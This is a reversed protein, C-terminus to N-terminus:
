RDTDLCSAPFAVPLIPMVHTTTGLFSAPLAEPLAALECGLLSSCALQPPSRALLYLPRYAERGYRKEIEKM